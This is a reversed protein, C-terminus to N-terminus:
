RTDPDSISSNVGRGPEVATPPPTRPSHPDAVRVGPKQQQSEYVSHSGKTGPLTGVSNFLDAFDATTLSFRIPPLAPAIFTAHSTTEVPSSESDESISDQRVTLEQATVDPDEPPTVNDYGKSPLPPPLPEPELGYVSTDIDPESESASEVSHPVAM